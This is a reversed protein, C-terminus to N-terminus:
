VQLLPKGGRKQQEYRAIFSPLGVTLHQDVRHTAALLPHGQEDHLLVLASFPEPLPMSSM